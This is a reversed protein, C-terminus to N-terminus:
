KECHTNVPIIKINNNSYTTSKLMQELDCNVIEIMQDIDKDMKERLEEICKFEFLNDLEKDPYLSINIYMDKIIEMLIYQKFVEFYPISEDTNRPRICKDKVLENRIMNYAYDHLVKYLNLEFSFSADNYFHQTPDYEPKLFTYVKVDYIFCQQKIRGGALLDSDMYFKNRNNIEIVISRVVKGNILKSLRHKSLERDLKIRDMQLAHQSAQILANALDIADTPSLMFSSETDENDDFISTLVVGTRAENTTNDYRSSVQFNYRETSISDELMSPFYPKVSNLKVEFLKKNEDIVNIM